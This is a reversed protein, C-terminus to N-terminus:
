KSAEQQRRLRRLRRGAKYEVLRGAVGETLVAIFSASQFAVVARPLRQGPALSPPLSFLLM